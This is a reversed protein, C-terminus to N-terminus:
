FSLLAFEVATESASRRVTYTSYITRENSFASDLNRYAGEPVHKPDLKSLDHLCPALIALITIKFLYKLLKTSEAAKSNKMLFLNM